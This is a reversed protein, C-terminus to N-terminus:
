KFIDIIPKILNGIQAFLQEISDCYSELRELRNQITTLDVKNEPQKDGCCRKQEAELKGMRQKMQDLANGLNGLAKDIDKCEAM